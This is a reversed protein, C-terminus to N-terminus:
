KSFLVDINDLDSMVGTRDTYAVKLRYYQKYLV